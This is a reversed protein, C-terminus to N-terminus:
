TVLIRKIRKANAIVVRPIKGGVIVDRNALHRIQACFITKAENLM